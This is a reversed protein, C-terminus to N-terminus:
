LEQGTGDSMREHPEDKNQNRNQNGHPSGSFSPSATTGAFNVGM